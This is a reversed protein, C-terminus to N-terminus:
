SQAKLDDEREPNLYSADPQTLKALTRKAHHALWILLIATFCVGILTYWLPREPEQLSSGIWVYFLTGPGIGILKGIVFDRPRIKLAGLTYNILSFPLFLAWHWLISLKIPAYHAISSILKVHLHGESWQAVRRSLGYRGITYSLYAGLVSGLSAWLMGEALGFCQGAIASLPTRPLNCTVWVIYVGVFTLPGAEKIRNLIHDLRGDSQIWWVGYVLLCISILIPILM